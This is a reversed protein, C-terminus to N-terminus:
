IGYIYKQLEVSYFDDNIPSTSFFYYYYSDASDCEFVIVSIKYKM